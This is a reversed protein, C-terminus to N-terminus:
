DRIEKLLERVRDMIVETVARLLAADVDHANEGRHSAGAYIRVVSREGAVEAVFTEGSWGGPLPQLSALDM